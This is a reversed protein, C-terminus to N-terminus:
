IIINEFGVLLVVNLENNEKKDAARFMGELLKLNDEQAAVFGKACDYSTTLKVFFLRKATKGIIPYNQAKSLFSSTTLLEELDNRQSLPINGEIDLIDNIDNTLLHYAEDGLM